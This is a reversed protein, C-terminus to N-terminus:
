WRNREPWAPPPPFSFRPAPVTSGAIPAGALEAKVSLYRTRLVEARSEANSQQNPMASTELSAAVGLAVCWAAREAKEAPPPDGVIYAVESAVGRIVALLQDAFNEDTLLRSARELLLGRIQVPRVLNVLRQPAVGDTVQQSM